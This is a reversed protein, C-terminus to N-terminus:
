ATAPTTDPATRAPSVHRNRSLVVVRRDGIKVRHELHRRSVHRRQDAAALRQERQLALGVRERREFGRERHIRRQGVQRAADVDQPKAAQLVDDLSRSGRDGGSPRLLGPGGIRPREGRRGIACKEMALQAQELAPLAIRAAASSCKRRAVSSSGASVTDNM